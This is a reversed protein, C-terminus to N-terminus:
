KKIGSPITMNIDGSTKIAWAVDAAIAASSPNTGANIQINYNNALQAAYNAGRVAGAVGAGGSLGKLLSTQAVGSVDYLQKGQPSLGLKKYLELLDAEAKANKADLADAAANAADAADTGTPKTLVLKSAVDGPAPLNKLNELARTLEAISGLLSGIEGDIKAVAKATRTNIDDLAEAYAGFADELALTLNGYLDALQEALDIGVQRLQERLEESAVGLTKNLYDAVANVGNNSQDQLAEWYAKMQAISEPTGKIITQALQHGVDPGQAIVEEIFTQSFGLGALQAADNALTKAKATQLGLAALIKETTGGKAYLGGFTLGSFIDGISRQTATKYIGRLQDISQKVIAANRKTAEQQANIVDRDYQKRLQAVDRNYRKELEFREAQATELIETREKELENIRKYADVVANIMDEQLQAINGLSKQMTGQLENVSDEARKLASTTSAILTKNTGAVASTYANQAATLNTVSKTYANSANQYADVSKQAQVILKDVPNLLGEKIAKQIDKGVIDSWTAKLEQATEKMAINFDIVRQRANILADSVENIDNKLDNLGSNDFKPIQPVKFDFSLTIKKGFAKDVAKRYDDFKKIQNKFGANVDDIAKLAAQGDKVWEDKGFLKGLAIRANIGGRSMLLLGNYVTTLIRYIVEGGTIVFKVVSALGKRFGESANYLKVFGYTAAFTLAVLRGIPSALITAALVALKKTLSIVAPILAITIAAALAIVFDNNKKIWSGTNNLASVFKNLFPLVRMGIQEALDGLNENLIAMQGAFTKTYATAQGGVRQALQNIAKDIGEAKPLTTDISIGLEKFARASGQTAKALTRAADELPVTKKRAFDASIALLRNSEAVSGTATILVSYADAAKESGFGLNEYSDVLKSTAALNEDTAVGVAAMSQGLRNLSKELVVIEKVGYAAFAAFALTLVKLAKTGVVAAKDFGSLAKGAKLAKAEMISLETNIKRFQAIAGAANAQIEFIVPPLFGNM